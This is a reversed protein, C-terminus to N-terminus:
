QQADAPIFDQVTRLLEIRTIYDDLAAADLAAQFRNNTERHDPIVGLCRELDEAFASYVGIVDVWVTRDETDGPGNSKDAIAQM